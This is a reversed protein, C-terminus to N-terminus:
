TPNWYSNVSYLEICYLDTLSHKKYSDDQLNCDFNCVACVGLLCDKGLKKCFRDQLMETLFTRFSIKTVLIDTQLFEMLDNTCIFVAFVLWKWWVTKSSDFQGYFSVQQQLFLQWSMYSYKLLFFLLLFCKILWFRWLPPMFEAVYDCHM